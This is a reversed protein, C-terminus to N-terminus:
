YWGITCLSLGKPIKRERRAGLRYTDPMMCVPCGDPCPHSSRQAPSTTGATPTPPLLLHSISWVPVPCVTKCKFSVFLFDICRLSHATYTALRNVKPQFIRMRKRGTDIVNYRHGFAPVRTVQVVELQRVPRAVSLFGIFYNVAGGAALLRFNYRITQQRLRTVPRRVSSSLPTYRGGRDHETM